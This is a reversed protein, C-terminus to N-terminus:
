DSDVIIDTAIPGTNREQDMMYFIKLEFSIREVNNNELDSLSRKNMTRTKIIGKSNATQGDPFTLGSIISNIQIMKINLLTNIYLGTKDIYYTNHRALEKKDFVRLLPVNGCYVSIIRYNNTNYGKHYYISKEEDLLQFDKDYGYLVTDIDYFYDIRRKVASYINNAQIINTAYIDIQFIADYFKRKISRGYSTVRIPHSKRTDSLFPSIRIEPYEAPGDKFLFNPVQIINDNYKVSTYFGDEKEDGIIQRIRYILENRDKM